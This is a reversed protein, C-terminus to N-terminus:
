LIWIGKLEISQVNYSNYLKKKTIVLSKVKERFKVLSKNIKHQIYFTFKNIIIIKKKINL